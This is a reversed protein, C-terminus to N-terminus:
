IKKTGRLPQEVEHRAPCWWAEIWKTKDSVDTRAMWIMEKKCRPCQPAGYEYMKDM